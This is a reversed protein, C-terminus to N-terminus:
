FGARGPGARGPSSFKNYNIINITKFPTLRLIQLKQVYDFMIEYSLQLKMLQHGHFQSDFM